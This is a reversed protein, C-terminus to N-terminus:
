DKKLEQIAIKLRKQKAELDNVLSELKEDVKQELLLLESTVARRMFDSRDKVFGLTILAEIKEFQKSSVNFCIQTRIRKDNNM